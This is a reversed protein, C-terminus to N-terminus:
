VEIATIKRMIFFGAVIMFISAIPMCIYPWAFLPLMYDPNMMFIFLALGIPMVTIIYGSIQVQATLVGIEGKIRVRERITHGITTLIQALNGGVEHQINIATVLLDLDDSPVRRLLNEMAEQNSIGLGIERVVRRFETAMPDATERAVMDMTQLLSYGARLSNAMLSITDGLQEIFKKRRRKAKLTLYFFPIAYGIFATVIGLLAGLAPAIRSLVVFGVAFGGVAAAFRVLLFEGVTMRVDARALLAATRGAIGRGKVLEEITRAAKNPQGRGSGESVALFDERTAFRGMREMVDDATPKERRRVIMAVVLFVVAVAVVGFLVPTNM